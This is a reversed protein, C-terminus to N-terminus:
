FLKLNLSLHLFENVSWCIFRPVSVSIGMYQGVGVLNQPNINFDVLKSLASHKLTATKTKETLNNLIKQEFRRAEEVKM